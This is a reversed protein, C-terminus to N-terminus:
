SQGFPLASSIGIFASAAFVMKLRAFPLGIRAATLPYAIM